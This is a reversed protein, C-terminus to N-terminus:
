KEVNFINKLIEKKISYGETRPMAKEGLHVRKDMVIKVDTQDKGPLASMGPNRRSRSGVPIGFKATSISSVRGECKRRM